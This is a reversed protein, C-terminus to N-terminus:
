DYNISFFYKLRKILFFGYIRLSIKAGADYNKSGLLLKALNSGRFIRIIRLIFSPNLFVFCKYLKRKIILSVLARPLFPVLVLLCAAKNFVGQKAYNGGLVLSKGRGDIISSVDEKGILERGMLFSFIKTGPFVKLWSFIVLDPRNQNYFMALNVIDREDEYPFGLINETASFIGASKIVGIARDIVARDTCRDILRSTPENLSEVGIAIEKCSAKKLLYAAEQSINSPHAYCFFSVDIHRKYEKSFEKLWLIDSTFNDDMFWVFDFAFAKKGRSLEKIVNEVSRRRVYDKGYIKLLNQNCCFACSYDCGRGVMTFYEKSYIRSQQYFLEKDPFPLLDLNEYYPRPANRIIQRDRKAWINAINLCRDPDNIHESLEVIAEEGEGICIYDICDELIVSEPTITPHIGGFVIKVNIKEKISKALDLGWQYTDTMISFCVLDPRIGQVKNLVIRKFSFVNGLVRNRQYPNQFLCPDIILEVEHGHSKLFASIYEIGLNEYASSIFLVKAM